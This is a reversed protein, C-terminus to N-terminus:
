KAIQVWGKLVQSEDAKRLRKTKLEILYFYVGPSLKEKQGQGVGDWDIQPLVDDEFVRKGWRNFVTLHVNEIFATSYCTPSFKENLGNGDPTFLNPLDYRICNDVCSKNMAQSENGSKDISTVAYCGALSSLSSHVFFTDATTGILALEEDEHPAYYVRFRYADKACDGLGAVSWRITRSFEIQTKLAECDECPGPDIAISPPPCPKITDSPNACSEQSRNLLPSPLLPNGYSGSTEVFYCYEASDKLPQGDISGDDTYEFIPGQQNVSDLLSFSGNTKRFIRHTYGGLSWPTSAKWRLTIKQTGPILELRVSQAQPTSDPLAPPNSEVQHFLLYSYTKNLTNLGEDRFSTDAPNLSSFVLQRSKDENIRFLSTRFIPQILLFNRTWRVNIKGDSKDTKEIDVNLMVPIDLNLSACLENSFLSEGGAPEPFRAVIRYCYSPGKLLGKGNNSDTFATDSAPVEAIKVFGNGAPMGPLCTDPQIDTSDIKRYIWIKSANTCSYPQWSIRLSDPQKVRVSRLVPAPGVVKITWTKLDVLPFSRGGNGNDEAQFVAYYSQKRIHNCNTQWAFNGRFPPSNGPVQSFQARNSTPNLKTLEGTLSLKIADSPDPDTARISRELRSGAVICTDRPIILVPPRNNADKVIIQIDLLVYGISDRKPRNERLKRWEIIKIATNYEGALRPVNWILDGTRQNLNLFAPINGSSDLGGARVAPDRYNSVSAPYGSGQSPIFQKSPVLQYSISDGDPDYAGPNYRYVAGINAIDVAAKTVVPSQDLALFPDIIVKTEVYFTTSGSFDMNLIALNRFLQYHYATYVGPSSYTYEYRYTLVQTEKEVIDFSTYIPSTIEASISADPYITNVTDRISSNLDRYITLIFEYRYGEIRKASIYGGRIHSGSALQGFFCFSLILFLYKKLPGIINVLTQQQSLVVKGNQRSCISILFSSNL